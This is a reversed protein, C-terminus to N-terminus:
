AHASREQVHSFTKKKAKQVDSWFFLVSIGVWGWCLGAPLSAWELSTLALNRALQHLNPYNSAKNPTEWTVTNWSGWRRFASRIQVTCTVCPSAHNLRATDYPQQRHLYVRVNVAPHRLHQVFVIVALARYVWYPRFNLLSWHITESVFFGALTSAYIVTSIM